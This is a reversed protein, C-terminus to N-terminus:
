NHCPTFEIDETAVIVIFKAVPYDYDSDVETEIYAKVYPAYVTKYSDKYEYKSNYVLMDKSVKVLDNMAIKEFDDDSVVTIVTNNDVAYIVEENAEICDECAEDSNYDVTFIVDDDAEYDLIWSYNNKISDVIVNDADVMDDVLKILTGEPLADAIKLSDIKKGTIESVVEETKGTYPNLVTYFYRYDGDKDADVRVDDTIIRYGDKNAKAAFNFEGSVTAYLVVLDDRDKRDTNNAVIYTVTDFVTDVDETFDAKSYETFVYKKKDEDYTRIIILTNDNIVVKNDLNAIEYRNGMYKSMQINEDVVIVQVADKEDLLATDKEMGIYEDDEDCAYALSTIVYKNNKIVYSCLKDAYEESVEGNDDIVAPYVDEVDVSVWQLKGDVWAYIDYAEAKRDYEPTKINTPIILEGDFEAYDKADGNVLVVNNYIYFENNNLIAPNIEFENEEYLNVDIAFNAFLKYASVANYKKGKITITDNKYGTIEGKIPKIVDIIKVYNLDSNFYGVVYDEDKYEVKATINADNIYAVDENIGDEEFAYDDDTSVFYAEYPMYFIYDFIDDGNVDYFVAEYVGDTYVLALKELLTNAADVINDEESEIADGEIFEYTEDDRVVEIFKLNKTNREAYKDGSTYKPKAYSYPANYFYAVNGDFSIKGSLLPANEKKGDFHDEKNEAKVEGLTIKNASVKNMLPEIFLIEDVADDKLTIYMTFHSMIYDDAAGPLNLEAFDAYFQAPVDLDEEGVYKFEIAEYGLDETSEDAGFVFKPTAIAQYEVEIVDFYKECFTPYTTVETVVWNGTEENGIWKFDNATEAIGTEAFFTNYLLIAMNGRTLTDAYNVDINENLSVNKSEAIEIYGFPYQLEADKEYGLARVLMTYAEQLTISGKPNYTTASTGKVIGQSYAWSIAYNYTPNELDTFPTTNKADAPADKGGKLLRYVFLAFQERTVPDNTGFETDSVGKAVDMYTLLDVATSLNKDAPNVDVFADAAYASTILMVTALIFGIIKRM